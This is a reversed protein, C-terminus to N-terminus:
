IGEKALKTLETYYEKLSEPPIEYQPAIAVMLLAGRVLEAPTVGLTRAQEQCWGWADLSFMLRVLVEEGQIVPFSVGRVTFNREPM